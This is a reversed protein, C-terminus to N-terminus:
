VFHMRWKVKPHLRRNIIMATGTSYYREESMWLRDLAIEEAKCMLLSWGMLQNEYAMLVGGNMLIAKTVLPISHTDLKFRCFEGCRRSRRWVEAAESGARANEMSSVFGTTASIVPTRNLRLLDAYSNVLYSTDQVVLGTSFSAVFLQLVLWVCQTCFLDLHRGLRGLRDARLPVQQQLLRGGMRLLHARFALLPTTGGSSRRLQRHLQLRSLFAAAMLTSAFLLFWIWPEFTQLCSRLVNGLDPQPRFASLLRADLMTSLPLFEVPYAEMKIAIPTPHM